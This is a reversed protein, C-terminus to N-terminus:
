SEILLKKLKKAFPCVCDCLCVSVRVGGFVIGTDAECLQRASHIRSEAYVTKDDRM